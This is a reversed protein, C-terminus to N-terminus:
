KEWLEEPYVGEEILKNLRSVVSEKDEKYTVGMWKADTTLIKATAKGEHILETLVDPILFECSELSNKNEEFFTTMKSEIHSFISPTFGFMNMSVFDQDTVEFSERGDLPSAIIKDNERIVNSEILTDLYEGNQQCVGRKVSGNETLTNSVLYGVLSYSDQNPNEKFNKFFEHIRFFADRGYFDDANIIAFNEHIVDKACYIAHATGWPKKRSEPIEIGEPIIELKQFVYEVPIHSEVRKGVTEKFDSFNEEKIIFVVKTFGAQIADYISYDILFEGHPGFPEIQKLGGFRSGMG